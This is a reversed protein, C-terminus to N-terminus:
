AVSHRLRGQACRRRCRRRRSRRRSPTPTPLSSTVAPRPRVQLSMVAHHVTAVCPAPPSRHSTVYRICDAAAVRAVHAAAVRKAFVFPDEAAFCLDVRCVEAEEAEGTTPHDFSVGFRQSEETYRTVRCDVWAAQMACCLVAYPWM